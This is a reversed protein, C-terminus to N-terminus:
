YQNKFEMASHDSIRKTTEANLLSDYTQLNQSQGRQCGKKNSARYFTKEVWARTNGELSEVNNGRKLQFPGLGRLEQGRVTQEVDGLNEGNDLEHSVHIPSFRNTCVVQKPFKVASSPPDRGDWTNSVHSIETATHSPSPTNELKHTWRRNDLVKHCKDQVSCREGQEGDSKSRILGNSGLGVGRRDGLLCSRKKSALHAANQSDLGMGLEKHGM